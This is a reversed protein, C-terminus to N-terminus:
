ASSLRGCPDPACLPAHPPDSCRLMAPPSGALSPSVAVMRLVISSASTTAWSILPHPTSSTTASLSDCRRPAIPHARAPLGFSYEPVPGIGASSAPRPFPPLASASTHSDAAHARRDCCSVASVAFHVSPAFNQAQGRPQCLCNLSVRGNSSLGQRAPVGSAKNQHYRHLPSPSQHRGVRDLILRDSSMASSPCSTYNRGARGIAQYRPRGVPPPMQVPNILSLSSVDSRYIGDHRLFRM